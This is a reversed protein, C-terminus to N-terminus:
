WRGTAGGGGSFGGGLGRLGGPGYGRCYRALVLKVEASTSGEAQRISANIAATEAETLFRRPNTSRTM